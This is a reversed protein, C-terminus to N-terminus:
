LSFLVMGFYTVTNQGNIYKMGAARALESVNVGYVELSAMALDPSRCPEGTVKACTGCVGCGGAALHLTKAIKKESFVARLSQALPYARKRAELMGEYDFSDELDSVTQYVLAFDYESVTKMLEDIDGVDPPCMYCRGYMGCANAECMARFSRDLSVDSSNIVAARSAGRSVTADCLASFLESNKM